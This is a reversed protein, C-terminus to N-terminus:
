NPPAAAESTAAESAAAEPAAACTCKLDRIRVNVLEVNEGIAYDGTFENDGADSRQWKEAFEIPKIEGSEDKVRAVVNFTGASGAPCKAISVTGTVRAVNNRQQYQTLTTAECQVADPQPLELSVNLPAETRVTTAAAATCDAEKRRSAMRSGGASAQCQPIVQSGTASGQNSTTVGNPVGQFVQGHAISVPLVLTSFALLATVHIRSM